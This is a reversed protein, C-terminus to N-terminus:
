AAEVKTAQIEPLTVVFAAGEGPKSHATITGGHREAIKRCVALGVGTGEYDRRSHLRQFVTFIRDLYKEDFGIGNDEVLIQCLRGSPQGAARRQTRRDNILRAHVKIVPSVDPQRYKLSNGILNQLLQRMQLPDAEIAPLDGIEIQAGAQEIQVELDTVVERAVLALDVPVFPQAKTEVRSFMLLDNILTQMRGAASQMRRLYDRGEEGLADYCRATLRDSFAQIKRLPEQLDHSAISAFDQLERNSRELKTAFVRLQEEIQKRETIDLMSGLWRAARGDEGHVLYGRDFVVAYSGDARRFRYEGSWGTAGGEIVDNIDRSVREMDDPHIRSKWAGISPEVQEAGHGFMKNFSENWWVESTLLDWDYVADNTARAVLQLREESKRLAEEARKRATIDRYNNVITHVGPETLLNTFTGELWRLSGDKHHVRAQLNVSARPEGCVAVLHSRVSEHDDTHVLDFANFNVLEDPAYGLVQPTSPSAYTINGDADFLVIADSSNEILSRFHGERDRLLEEARKRENINRAITSDAIVRGASDKVPSITISVDVRTGDKRVRVTEMQDIRLNRRLSDRIRAVEDYREPPVILSIHRGIAEQKTYGYMKEAGANWSTIWGDLTKSLIADESSEVIAALLLREEEDRERRTIDEISLLILRARGSEDELRRANLLMARQGICPFEREVKFERVEIDHAPIDLLLSQLEPIDWQGNGLAFLAVGETEERDAHFMEYFARNALKVRLEADLLILPERVTEVINWAYDQRAETHAPLYGTLVHELTM